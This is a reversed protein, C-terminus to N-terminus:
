GDDAKDGVARDGAGLGSGREAAEGAAPVPHAAFGLQAGQVGGDLRADLLHVDEDAADGAAADALRVLRRRLEHDREIASVERHAPRTARRMAAAGEPRPSTQCKWTPLTPEVLVSRNVVGTALTPLEAATAGVPPSAGAAPPGPRLTTTRPLLLQSVAEPMRAQVFGIALALPLIVPLSCVYFLVGIGWDKARPVFGFDVPEAKRMVLISVM